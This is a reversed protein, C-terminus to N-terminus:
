VATALRVPAFVVLPPMVTISLVASVIPAAPMLRAPATAPLPSRLMVVNSPEIRISPATALVPELPLIRIALPLVVVDRLRSTAALTDDALPLILRSARPSKSSLLVEELTCVELTALVISRCASPLTVMFLKARMPLALPLMSSLARPPSMATPLISAPEALTLKVLVAAMVSACASSAVLRTTLILPPLTRSTATLLMPVPLALRSMAATVTAACTLAKFAPTKRLSLLVRVTPLMPGILM